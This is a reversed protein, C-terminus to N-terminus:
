PVRFTIGGSIATPAYRTVITGDGLQGNRNDGWCYGVGALTVACVNGYTAGVTVASFSTGAKVLVPTTSSIPVASGTGFAGGGNYGVCYLGDNTAVGCLVDDISALSKFTTTGAVRVPTQLTAGATGGFAALQSGSGVCYAEGGALLGCVSSASLHPSLSAFAVASTILVPTASSSVAGAGSNLGALNGWCYLAGSTVIGCNVNNGVVVQKWKLGAALPLFKQSYPLASVSQGTGLLGGGNGGECYGTGDTAVGCIQTTSHASISAFTIGTGEAVPLASPGNIFGGGWCYLQGITTVGCSLAFDASLSAFTLGGLVAVPTLRDTMTGDGLGFPGYGWCYAAGSANLACAHADGTTIALLQIPVSAGSAGAAVNVTATSSIGESTATITTSGVAIGTVLGAASITAKSPDSSTWTVTRGTLTVGGANTTTASLTATAGVAINTVPSSIKVIAVPELSVTVAATGTKTESTATITVTGLAVGSVVGAGNVTAKTADSTSWTVARGLLVTGNADKTTAAFQTSSNTFVTVTAPAVTVTAVPAQAITVAATGTKGESTATITATGVAVGTVLGAASVTAKTSDSTTWTVTRGTLTAGGADKTVATLQTTAGVTTPASAPTVTVTSVPVVVEGLPAYTSFHTTAGSVTHAAVDVTSGSVATWDSGTSTYLKLSSEAVNAPLTAPDYKITITVPVTFTTGAPGFEFASGTVLGANALVSTASAVTVATNGALAGAPIVVTAANNSSAATGGAAGIGGPTPSPSTSESCSAVPFTLTAAVFLLRSLRM